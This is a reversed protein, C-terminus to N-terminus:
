NMRLSFLAWGGWALLLSCAIGFGAQQLLLRSMSRLGQERGITLATVLCPLTVSALYVATLTQVVTLAEGEALLFIGDKRIAALMVPVATEAPLGFLAMVPALLSAGQGLLGSRALLSALVCILAFIPLAKVFFERLTSWVERGIAAPRPWELFSRQANMLVNLQDKGSPTAVLKVFLLTTLMLYGLFAFVLVMWSQGSASATAALVALTAPLQYSCAAGFSIAAIAGNRSCESCARTSIVAPVNCGFGMMVRVVDRGSLGWPRVLPHLSANIRDILGTSKYLALILSFLVITPLAWVLLFPGMNLLGYGFDGEGSVLIWRLWVPLTADIWVLVPELWGEVIPHLWGALANAGFIAALAPSFVMLLGLVPGWFRHELIGPAPEIRWGARQRPTDTQFLSPSQLAELIKRQGSEGLHRADVTIMPVGIEASLREIAEFAAEGLQVRDWHTVVVIGRKGHVLPLMDALNEDLSTASVVLLVVEKQDLEALALRTTQTDSRRLIGPTDLLVLDDRTYRQVAVTSGRFNSAAAVKGTLSALLETKGVGEKGVVVVHRLPIATPPNRPTLALTVM